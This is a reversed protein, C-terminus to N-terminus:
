IFTHAFCIKTLKHGYAYVQFLNRKFPSFPLFIPWLISWSLIESIDFVKMTLGVLETYTLFTTQQFWIRRQKVHSAELKSCADAISLDLKSFYIGVM